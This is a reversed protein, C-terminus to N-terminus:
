QRTNKNLLGRHQMNSLNVNNKQVLGCQGVSVELYSSDEAGTPPTNYSVVVFM